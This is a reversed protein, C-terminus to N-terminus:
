IEFSELEDKKKQIEELSNRYTEASRETDRLVWDKRAAAFEILKEISDVGKIYGDSHYRLADREDKCTILIRVANLLRMALDRDREDKLEATVSDILEMDSDDPSPKNDFLRSDVMESLEEKDQDVPDTTEPEAFEETHEDFLKAMWYPLSIKIKRFNRLSGNSCRLEATSGFLSGDPSTRDARLTVRNGNGRIAHKLGTSGRVYMRSMIDILAGDRTTYRRGRVFGTNDSVSVKRFRCADIALFVPQVRKGWGGTNSGFTVEKGIGEYAISLVDGKSSMETVRFLLPAITFKRQEKQMVGGRNPAKMVYWSDLEWVAPLKIM